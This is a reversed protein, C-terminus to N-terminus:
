GAAAPIDRPAFLEEPVEDLQAPDLHQRAYELYVGERVFINFLDPDIHSTRAMDALIRMSESLRKGAKYPRDRATLAEFVDAIAVIRAQVSMQEGTLGRPYGKGDMREHHGSAFEPVNRLHKPFPLSELMRTTAVVHNNITQREGPTLTGRPINLNAVEDETLLRHERGDADFWTRRAIARVRAQDHESMFEGGLNSRRLFALDDALQECEEAFAGGQAASGPTPEGAELRALRRKLLAIEADRRLIETRANVLEIRDFKTELKTAKDVVHEPTIIKGCDHLWAAVELEYRDDEDLTFEEFPKQRCRAVADALMMTLVPVRRCHGGTYASKEDIANAILHIFSKFLDELEAVLRKNTLAVAAQSALAETLRQAEVSFPVIRGDGDTANILQLVGIVNGKHDKMPVTLFSTSRYGTQRDFARTGSFDFGDADYADRINVTAANLVAYTVVMRGNPQGAEDFLPIPPATGTTGGMAVNLSDTLIIEMRVTGDERVSYLTGGDANTITKAGRLITELLHQTNKEASLAIGIDILKELRQLLESHQM